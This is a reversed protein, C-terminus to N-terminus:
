QVLRGIAWRARERVGAELSADAELKRLETAMESAKLDVLLDILAIEVLPSTQKKISQVIATRTVPSSGFTHLADVAAMRVNVSGDNNVTELLASLVETDQPAARYAWSVGRLREGASQQQMLSLAVMQRMSSVEGRLQAVETGNAVPAAPRAMYGIGVGVVLMAFAVAPWFAAFREKLTPRSSAMGHRYAALSEYFRERVNDGPAPMMGPLLALGKWLTGLRETEGRCAECTAIHEAFELERAETLSHSLYEGLDLKAEECNM